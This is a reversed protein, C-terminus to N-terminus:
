KICTLKVSISGLYYRTFEANSLLLRYFISKTDELPLSHLLSYYDGCHGDTYFRDGQKATNPRPEPCHAAPVKQAPLELNDKIMSWSVPNDKTKSLCVPNDKTM